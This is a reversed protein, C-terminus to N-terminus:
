RVEYSLCLGRITGGFQSFKARPSRRVLQVSGSCSAPSRRPRSSAGLRTKDRMTKKMDTEGEGFARDFMESQITGPSVSNVRVGQKAFELAAPKTLGILAFTSAVYVSACSLRHPRRRLLISPIEVVPGLCPWVLCHRCRAWRMPHLSSSAYCRKRKAWRWNSAGLQRM